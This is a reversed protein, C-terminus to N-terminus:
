GRGTGGGGVAHRQSLRRSLRRTDCFCMAPRIPAAPHAVGGSRFYDVSVVRPPSPSQHCATQESSLRVSSQIVSQHSFQRDVKLSFSRLHLNCSLHVSPQHNFHPIVSPSIYRNASPSLALSSQCASQLHFSLRASPQIVPRGPSVSQGISSVSSQIVSSSSM